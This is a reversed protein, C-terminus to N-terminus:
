EYVKIIVIVWIEHESRALDYKAAWLFPREYNMAYRQRLYSVPSLGIAHQVNRHYRAIAPRTPDLIKRVLETCAFSIEICIRLLRVHVAALLQRGVPM